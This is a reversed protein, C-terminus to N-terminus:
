VDQTEVLLTADKVGNDKVLIKINYSKKLFGQWNSSQIKIEKSDFKLTFRYALMGQDPKYYCTDMQGQNFKSLDVIGSAKGNEDMYAFCDPSYLFRNFVFSDEM